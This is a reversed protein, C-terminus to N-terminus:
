GLYRRLETGGEDLRERRLSYYTLGGEVTVTALGAARLLALHHKMTPKSLQLQVALETLYWDRDRLLRLIQLRTPDGLARFLRVMSAPPVASDSELVADGIPYCFLRWDSGQFVMNFPRAFYSPALIVRRIRAEAFYRLGGTIREVAEDPPLSRVEPQRLAVDAAGLRELRDEIPSFRSLWASLAFHTREIAAAPAALFRRMAENDDECLMPDVRALADADGDVAAILLADPADTDVSDRLMAVALRHPDTDRLVALVDAARRADPHDVLVAALGHFASPNTFSFAWDLTSRQEDTLSARSDSLWQRDGPLLDSEMADGSGASILFDWATRRDFLLEYARSGRTLDRVAPGSSAPGPRAITGRAM